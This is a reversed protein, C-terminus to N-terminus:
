MGPLKIGSQKLAQMIKEQLAYKADNFGHAATWVNIMMKYGDSELSSIVIRHEPTTALEKSTLIVESVSKKVQEADIGYSFKLEINIRRTGKRSLNIIIENSLKSNPVIITQNDYSIVVTYFLQIASVTGEQSQTVINDGIKYPRLLLILVGSAFNQLTGSLALGATVGISAIVATFVTLQIGLIQMLLLVLLVQLLVAVLGNLFFRVQEFRKAVFFRRSWKRLIKILWEGVILVIIAIVIKPGHTILWQYALDYFDANVKKM